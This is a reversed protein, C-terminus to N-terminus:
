GAAWPTRAVGTSSALALWTFEAAHMDSQGVARGRQVDAPIRTHRRAWSRPPAVQKRTSRARHVVHHNRRRRAGTTHGPGRTREGVPQPCGITVAWV